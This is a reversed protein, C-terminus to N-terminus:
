RSVTLMGEGVDRQVVALFAESVGNFDVVDINWPLEDVARRVQLFQAFNLPTPGLVGVDWDSEPRAHGRAQSGFLFVRFQHGPLARRVTELILRQPDQTSLFHM